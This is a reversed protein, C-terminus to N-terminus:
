KAMVTHFGPSGDVDQLPLVSVMIKLASHGVAHPALHPDETMDGINRLVKMPCDDGDAIEIAHMKAMLRQDAVGLAVCFGTANGAGDQAELRGATFEKTGAGLRDTECRKAAFRM